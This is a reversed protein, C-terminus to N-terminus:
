RNWPAKALLLGMMCSNSVGTVILGVGVLAPLLLFWHSSLAGLLTGLVVLSGATIQVQRQISIPGEGRTRQFDSKPIANLGGQICIVDLSDPADIKELAKKSRVGSQCIVYVANYDAKLSDLTDSNFSDLPINRSIELCEARFEAPSRVDIVISKDQSDFHKKLESAPISKM